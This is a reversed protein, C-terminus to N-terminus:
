IHVMDELKVRNTRDTKHLDHENDHDHRMFGYVDPWLPAVQIMM